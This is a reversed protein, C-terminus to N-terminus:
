AFAGIILLIASFITTILFLEIWREYFGYSGGHPAEKGPPKWYKRNLNSKHENM